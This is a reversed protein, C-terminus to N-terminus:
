PLEEPLPRGSAVRRVQAVIRDVGAPDGRWSRALRRAGAAIRRLQLVYGRCHRCIMLHLALSARTALPAARWEGSAALQVVERCRLM